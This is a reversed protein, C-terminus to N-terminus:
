REKEPSKLDTIILFATLQSKLFAVTEDSSRLFGVKILCQPGVMENEQFFNLVFCQPPLM